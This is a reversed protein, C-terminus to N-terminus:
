GVVQITASNFTLTYEIEHPQSMATTDAYVTFARDFYEVPIEFASNGEANVPLYIEDDLRMYDYNKSSWEILAACVGNAVTLKAPSTVSARGSGGSLSVEVTYEGDSLGLREATTFFGEKFAEAPLSDARFLLTRDYWLEKRRSYAACTFPEDLATIELTFSRSGDAHEELPILPDYGSAEAMAAEVATGPFMYAYSDSAMYLVAEIKGDAVVLECRDVKFMSSSSKMEVPYTGDRLGDAGVPVMGAEAVEEVTTM